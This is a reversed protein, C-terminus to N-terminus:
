QEPNLLAHFVFLESHRIKRTIELIAHDKASNDVM